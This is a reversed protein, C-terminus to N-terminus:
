QMIYGMGMLINLVNLASQSVSHNVKRQTQATNSFMDNVLV